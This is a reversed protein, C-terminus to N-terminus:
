SYYSDRARGIEITGSRRRKSRRRNVVRNYNKQDHIARGVLDMAIESLQESKKRFGFYAAIAAILAPILMHHKGEKRM